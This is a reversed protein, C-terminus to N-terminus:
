SSPKQKRTTKKLADFFEGRSIPPIELDRNGRKRNTPSPAEDLNTLSAETPKYEEAAHDTAKEWEILEPQDFIELIKQSPVVMTIGSHWKDKPDTGAFEVMTELSM